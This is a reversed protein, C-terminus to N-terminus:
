AGIARDDQARRRDDAVLHVSLTLPRNLQVVRTAASYASGHAGAVGENRRGGGLVVVDSLDALGLRQGQQRLGIGQRQELGPQLRGMLGLGVVAVGHGQGRHVLGAHGVHPHHQELADIGVAEDEEGVQLAGLAALQRRMRRRGQQEVPLGQPPLHPNAPRDRRDAVGLGVGIEGRPGARGLEAGPGRVLRPRHLIRQLQAFPDGLHPQPEAEALDRSRRVPRAEAQRRDRDLEPAVPGEAQM